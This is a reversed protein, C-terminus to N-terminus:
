PTFVGKSLKFDGSDEISWKVSSDELGIDLEEQNLERLVDFRVDTELDIFEDYDLYIFTNFPAFIYENVESFELDPM